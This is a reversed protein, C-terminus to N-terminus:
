SGSNEWNAKIAIWLDLDDNIETQHSFLGGLYPISSLGLVGDKGDSMRRVTLSTLLTKEDIRLDFQGKFDRTKISPILTDTAAADPESFSLNFDVTIESQGPSLNEQPKLTVELGHKKWVAQDSRHSKLRFGMEGGTHFTAEKGAKTRLKPQAILRGWGQSEGADIGLDLSLSGMMAQPSKSPHFSLRTQMSTPYLFGYSAMKKRSVEFLDVEFILTHGPKPATQYQFNYFSMLGLIPEAEIQEREPRTLLASQTLTLLKRGEQIQSTKLIKYGLRDLNKEFNAFVSSHKTYFEPSAKLETPICNEKVGLFFDELSGTFLAPVQTWDIKVQSLCRSMLHFNQPSLVVGIQFETDTSNKNQIGYLHFRCPKRGKAVLVRDVVKIDVCETNSTWVQSGLVSFTRPHEPSLFFVSPPNSPKPVSALSFSTLLFIGWLTQKHKKMDKGM